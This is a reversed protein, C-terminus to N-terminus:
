AQLAGVVEDPHTMILLRGGNEIIEFPSDPLRERWYSLTVAPDYLVDYKGVVRQHHLAGLARLRAVGDARERGHDRALLARSKNEGSGGARGRSM